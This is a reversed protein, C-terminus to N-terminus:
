NRTKWSNALVELNITTRVITAAGNDPQASYKRFMMM